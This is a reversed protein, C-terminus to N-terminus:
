GRVSALRGTQSSQLRALVFRVWDRVQGGAQWFATVDKGMPPRIRQMRPSLQGLREAGKEGEADTDYAVLLRPCGLLYRLARVGVRKGCGGLTAVGVLDGAEQWLLLADFEGEVLIALDGPVLTEAGFLCPHGGSIALYKPQERNTRVKLQWLQGDLLWPLVIGRPIRVYAPRGNADCGPFGWPEAPDRRGEEPQFGIRWAHLTEDNLGRAHLYARARDGAASWLVAEAEELFRMGAARWAASPELDEALEPLPPLAQAIPASTTPRPSSTRASASWRRPPQPWAVGLESPSAGLRQCAEAFGLGERQRVYAIADQWRPGDSCGRCWWRGRLPQVRFRDRGGCFPCPGAYEGGSTMAVKKLRTDAGILGLLDIRQKIAATDIAPRTTMMAM